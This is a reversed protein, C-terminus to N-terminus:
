AKSRRHDDSQQDELDVGLSRAAEHIREVVAAFQRGNRRVARRLAVNVDNVWRDDSGLGDRQVEHAMM